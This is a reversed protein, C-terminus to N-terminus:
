KIKSTESLMKSIFIGYGGTPDNLFVHTVAGVIMGNQIIPSGSMGQIIGGTKEILKEDTIKIVMNKNETSNQNIDTIEIDFYSKEGQSVTTLIQAKGKKIENDSAVPFKKLENFNMNKTKGYIGTEINLSILGKETDDLVGSLEGAYGEYGKSLGTIVADTLVGKSLPLLDGTDVDCVGHGLSAFYGDETVFSLTGIGASSDRIWLGARFVGEDDKVSNFSIKMTQGNRLVELFNTKEKNKEIEKSFDSNSQVKIGNISKIVDGKQLGAKKAPNIVGKSTKISDMGVVIVGDCYLKIGVPVGGAYVYRRKNNKVNESINKVTKDNKNKETNLFHSTIPLFDDKINNSLVDNKKIDAVVSPSFIILLLFVTLIVSLFSFVLKQKKM